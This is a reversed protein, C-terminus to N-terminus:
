GRTLEEIIQNDKISKKVIGQVNKPKVLGYWTFTGDPKMILVNGAYVHGGVHSVYGLQVDDQLNEHQLVKAFEDHVLKGIVGCRKDRQTHGCILVTTKTIPSIDFVSPSEKSLTDLSENNNLKQFLSKFSDDRPQARLNINVYKSDPFVMYAAEQDIKTPDSPPLSSLVILNGNGRGVKSISRMIDYAEVKKPWANNDSINSLYVIVKSLPPATHRIPKTPDHLSQEIELPPQCFTCGTDYVPEPCKPVIGTYKFRRQQFLQRTLIHRSIM